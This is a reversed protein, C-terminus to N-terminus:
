KILKPMKALPNLFTLQEVVDRTLKSLPRTIFDDEHYVNGFAVSYLEEITGLRPFASHLEELYRGSSIHHRRIIDAIEGGHSEAYIEKLQFLDFSKKCRDSKVPELMNYELDVSFSNGLGVASDANLPLVNFKAATDFGEEYPHIFEGYAVPNQNKVSRNCVLCSPILNYFSLALLPNNKKPLFHDFDPRTTRKKRAITVTYNRNCYPCTNVKLKKALDYGCYYTAKTVTFHKYNFVSVLGRNITHLRLRSAGPGTCHNIYEQKLLALDNPKGILIRKLNAIIFSKQRVRLGGLRGLILPSLENYHERAIGDLGRLM